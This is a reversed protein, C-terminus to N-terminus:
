INAQPVSLACFHFVLDKLCLFSNGSLINLYLQESLPNVLLFYFLLGGSKKEIQAEQKRGLYM